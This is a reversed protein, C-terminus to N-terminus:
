NKQIIKIQKLIRGVKITIFGTREAGTNEKYSFGIHSSTTSTITIWDTLTTVEVNGPYDTSYVISGTGASNQVRYEGKEVALTYFGDSSIDNLNTDDWVKIDTSINFPLAEFATEVTSFGDAGVKIIQISYTQNRLIDLKDAGQVMDVRYYSSVGGNYRGKIILCVANSSTSIKNASEGIYIEREVENGSSNKEYSAIIGVNTPITPATVRNNINDYNNAAPAVTARNASNFVTVSELIFKSDKNLVNVRALSRIMLAKGLDSPQLSEDVKIANPMEGWMPLVSTTESWDTSPTFTIAAMAEEKTTNSTLGAGSVLGDALNALLVLRYKENAKSKELKVNFTLKQGVTMVNTAVISYAFLDNETFVLVDLRTIANEGLESMRTEPIGIAPMTASLKVEIQSGLDRVGTEQDNVNEKKCSFVTILLTLAIIMKQMRRRM